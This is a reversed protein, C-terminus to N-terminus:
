PVFVPKGCHPCALQKGSATARAKLRKGCGDCAVTVSQSGEQPREGAASAQPPSRAAHRRSRIALGSAGALVLFALVGLTLWARNGRRAPDGTPAGSFSDAFVQLETIRADLGATAGGTSGVIRVGKVPDRAVPWRGLLVFDGNSGEAAYYSLTAGSRVLRLRGFKSKVPHVSMQPEGGAAPGGHTLCALIQTGKDPMVTRAVTAFDRAPGDLPLAVTLRTEKATDKRAPEYLMEYSVTIDFDGQVGFATVVGTRPREDPYGPPLVIRLGKAEARVGQDADLGFLDLDAGLGPQDRFSREFRDRYAAKPKAAEQPPDARGAPENAPVAVPDPEPEAHQEAWGAPWPRPPWPTPAPPPVQAHIVLAAGLVCTAIALVTATGAKLTAAGLPRAGEEALAVATASLPSAAKGAVPALVGALTGQVLVAAPAASATKQALAAVTLAATLTIGRRALRAELLKRARALQASITGEKCGLERAAEARSLGELCCLVFVRRYKEPLRQVEGDLIRQLERLAAEGWAPPGEAAAPARSECEQRRTTRQRLRLATRYAVGYLWSGVAERKHISAAKRALLLFVAQFADEADQDHHLLRRCVGWVTRGHRQVLRTFAVEDRERVFRDLLHRDTFDHRPETESLVTTGRDHGGALGTKL